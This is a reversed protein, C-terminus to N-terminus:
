EIEGLPVVCGRVGTDRSAAGPDDAVFACRPAACALETGDYEVAGGEVEDLDHLALIVSNIITCEALVALEPSLRRGVM